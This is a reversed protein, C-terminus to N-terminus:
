LYGRLSEVREQLDAIRAQIPNTELMITLSTSLHAITAFDASIRYAHNSPARTRRKGLLGARLMRSRANALEASAM